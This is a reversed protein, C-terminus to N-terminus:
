SLYDLLELFTFARRADPDSTCFMIRCAKVRKLPLAIHSYGETHYQQGSRCKLIDVLQSPKLPIHSTRQFHHVSIAVIEFSSSQPNLALQIRIRVQFHAETYQAGSYM